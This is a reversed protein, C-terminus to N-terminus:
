ATLTSCKLAWGQQVPISIPFNGNNITSLGGATPVRWNGFGTWQTGGDARIMKMNQLHSASEVQAEVNTITAGFLLDGMGLGSVLSTMATPTADVVDTAGFAERGRSSTVLAICNSQNATADIAYTFVQFVDDSQIRYPAIQCQQYDVYGAISIFGQRKITNTTTNLIRWTGCGAAMTSCVYTITVNPLSLGASVASVSDVTNGYAGDTNTNTFVRSISLNGLTSTTAQTTM